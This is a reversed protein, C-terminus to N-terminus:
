SGSQVSDARFSDTRTPKVEDVLGFSSGLPLIRPVVIAVIQYLRRLKRSGGRDFSRVAGKCLAKIGFGPADAEILSHLGGNLCTQGRRRAAFHEALDAFGAKEAQMRYPAQPGPGAAAM